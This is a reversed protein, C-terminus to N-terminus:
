CSSTTPTNPAAHPDDALPPQPLTPLPMRVGLLRQKGPISLDHLLLPLCRYLYLLFVGMGADKAVVPHDEVDLTIM